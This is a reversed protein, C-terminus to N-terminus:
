QRGVCILLVERACNTVQPAFQILGRDLVERGM